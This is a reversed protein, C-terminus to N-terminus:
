TNICGGGNYFMDFIFHNSDNLDDFILKIDKSEYLNGFQFKKVIHNM